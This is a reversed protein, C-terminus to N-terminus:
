QKIMLFVIENWYCYITCKLETNTDDKHVQSAKITFVVYKLSSITYM